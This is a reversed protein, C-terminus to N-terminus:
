DSAKPEATCRDASLSQLCQSACAGLAGNAGLPKSLLVQGDQIRFAHLMGDGVFWHARPDPIVPNRGDRVLIGCLGDPIAGQLRLPGADIEYGIPDITASPCTPLIRRCPAPETESAQPLCRTLRGAISKSPGRSIREAQRSKDGVANRRCRRTGCRRDTRPYPRAGQSWSILMTLVPIFNYLVNPESVGLVQISRTWFVLGIVAAGISIGALAFLVSATPATHPVRGLAALPLMGLLGMIVALATNVIPSVRHDLLKRSGITYFAM